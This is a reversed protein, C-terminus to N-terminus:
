GLSICQRHGFHGAQLAGLVGRLEHRQAMRQRQFVHVHAAHRYGSRCAIRTYQSVESVAFVPTSISASAPALAARSVSYSRVLGISGASVM